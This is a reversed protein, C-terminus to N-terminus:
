FTITTFLEFVQTSKSSGYAEKAGTGPQFLGVAGTVALWPLPAWDIYVDLENGFHDSTVGTGGTAKAVSNKRDYHFIYGIAGITVDASPKLKFHVQHLNENSNYLMYQGAIEGHFFTGWGRSAGYRFGDFAESKNTTNADDGSFHAYRYSLSPTWPVESFTYGAEGYWGVADLRKTPAPNSNTQRAYEASLFIEPHGPVPTGQARVDFVKMGDRTSLGAIAAPNSDGIKFFAAGITGIGPELAELNIGGLENRGSQKDTRLLFLDARFPMWAARLIASNDFSLRPALYYTGDRCCDANGDALLFGDGIAFEQRGISVDIGNTTRATTADGSRWGAYLKDLDKHITTGTSYQTGQSGSTPANVADGDGFTGSMIGGVGGYAIGGGGGITGSFSPKVYSEYWTPNQISRGAGRPVTGAGLGANRVSFAGAAAKMDFQLTTDGESYLPIGPTWAAPDDQALAQSAAVIAAGALAIKLIV